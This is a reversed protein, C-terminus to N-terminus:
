NSAFVKNVKEGIEEARSYSLVRRASFTKIADPSLSKKCYAYFPIAQTKENRVLKRHLEKCDLQAPDEWFQAFIFAPRIEEAKQLIEATDNSLYVSFGKEELAKKLLKMVYEEVGVVLAWKGDYRIEPAAPIEELIAEERQSAGEKFIENVVQLLQQFDIPKPLFTHIEWPAFFDKMAPRGSVVIIPVQYFLEEDKKLEQLFEYGSKEPMLVDMIILDPKEVKTKELAERGNSATIIDYHQNSLRNAMLFLTDDDDDVILIKKSM